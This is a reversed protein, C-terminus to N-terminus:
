TNTSARLPFCAKLDFFFSLNFPFFTLFFFFQNLSPFYSRSENSLSLSHSASSLAVHLVCEWTFLLMHTHTHTHTHTCSLFLLPPLSVIVPQIVLAHHQLDCPITLSFLLSVFFFFLQVNSSITRCCLLVTFSAFRHKSLTQLLPHPSPSSFAVPLVSLCIFHRLDM